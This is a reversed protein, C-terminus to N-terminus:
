FVNLRIRRLESYEVSDAHAWAENPRFVHQLSPANGSKTCQHMDQGRWPAQPKTERLQRNLGATYVCCNM